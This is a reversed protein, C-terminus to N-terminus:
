FYRSKLIKAKMVGDVVERMEEWDARLREIEEHSKPSMIFTRKLAEVRDEQGFNWHPIKVILLQLLQVPHLMELKTGPFGDCLGELINKHIAHELARQLMHIPQIYTREPDIQKNAKFRMDEEEEEDKRPPEADVLSALYREVREPADRKVAGLYLGIMMLQRLEHRGIHEIEEYIGKMSPYVTSWYKWFSIYEFALIDSLVFYCGDYMKVNWWTTYFQCVPRPPLYYYDRGSEPDSKPAVFWDPFPLTLPCFEYKSTIVRPYQLIFRHKELVLKRIPKNLALLRPLSSVPVYTFIKLLIASPLTSLPSGSGTLEGPGTCQPTEPAREPVREPEEPGSGSFRAYLNKLATFKQKVAKIGSHIHSKLDGAFSGSQKRLHLHQDMDFCEGGQDRGQRKTKGGRMRRKVYNAVRYKAKLPLTLKPIAPTAM